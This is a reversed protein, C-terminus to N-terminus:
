GVAQDNLADLHSAQAGLVTGSAPRTEGLVVVAPDFQARRLEPLHHREGDPAYGNPSCLGLRGSRFRVNAYVPGPQGTAQDRRRM